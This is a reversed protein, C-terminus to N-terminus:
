LYMPVSRPPPRAGPSGGRARGAPPRREEAGASRPKLGPAAPAASPPSLHFLDQLAWSGRSGERPSIVASHGHIKASITVFAIGADRATDRPLSSLLVSGHGPLNLGVADRSCGRAPKKPVAAWAHTGTGDRPSMGSVRPSSFLSSFLSWCLGAGCGPCRPPHSVCDKINIRALPRGPPRTHKSLSARGETIIGNPCLSGPGATALSFGREKVRGPWRLERPPSRPCQPM